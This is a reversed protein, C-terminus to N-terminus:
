KMKNLINQDFEKALLADLMSCFNKIHVEVKQCPIEKNMVKDRMESSNILDAILKMQNNM